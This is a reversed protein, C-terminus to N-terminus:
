VDLMENATLVVDEIRINTLTDISSDDRYVRARYQLEEELFDLPM